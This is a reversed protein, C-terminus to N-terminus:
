PDDRQNPPVDSDTLQRLRELGRQHRRRVEKVTSGLRLAIRTFSTPARGQCDLHRMRIVQAEQIPLLALLLDAHDTASARPTGEEPAQPQGEFPIERAYLKKQRRTQAWLERTIAQTVYTTFAGRTHDYTGAARVLVWLAQSYFDEFLDPRRLIACHKRALQAAYDVASACIASAESDLTRM